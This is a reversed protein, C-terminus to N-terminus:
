RAIACGWWTRRISATSFNVAEEASLVPTKGRQTSYKPGRVAAAPNVAVVQGLVLYDFIMRVAALQQKV